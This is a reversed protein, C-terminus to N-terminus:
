KSGTRQWVLCRVGGLSVDGKTIKSNVNESWTIDRSGTLTKTHADDLYQTITIPSDATVTQNVNGNFVYKGVIYYPTQRADTTDVNNGSGKPVTIVVDAGIGDQTITTQDGFANKSATDAANLEFQAPVPIRIETGYNISRIVRNSSFSNVDSANNIGLLEKLSLSYTYDKNPQIASQNKKAPTRTLEPDITPKMIQTFTESVSGLDNGDADEASLIIRMERSGISDSDVMTDRWITSMRSKVSTFLFNQTLSGAEKLVSTIYYYSALNEKTVTTDAISAKSYTNIDYLVSMDEGLANTPVKLTFKDGIEGTFSVTATISSGTGTTEGTASTYGIEKSSLTLSKGQVLRDSSSSDAKDTNEEASVQKAQAATRKAQTAAAEELLREETTTETNATSDTTSADSTLNAESSATSDATSAADSSNNYATSETTTSPVRAIATSNVGSTGESTESSATSAISETTEKTESSDTTKSAESAAISDTSTKEASAQSSTESAAASTKTSATSTASGESTATSAVTSTAAETSTAESQGTDNNAKATVTATRTDTTTDAKVPSAPGFIFSLGLLVSTVGFSYKRISFRQKADETQQANFKKAKPILM